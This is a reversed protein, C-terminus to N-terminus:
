VSGGGSSAALLGTKFTLGQSKSRAVCASPHRVARESNAARTPSAFRRGVGRNVLATAALRPGVGLELQPKPYSHCYLKSLIASPPLLPHARPACSPTSRQLPAVVSPPCPSTDCYALIYSRRILLSSAAYGASHRTYPPPPPPSSTVVGAVLKSILTWSVNEAQSRGLSPCWYRVGYGHCM